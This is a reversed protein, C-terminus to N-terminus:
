HRPGGFYTFWNGVAAELSAMPIAMAGIVVVWVVGVVHLCWRRRLSLILALVAAVPTTVVALSTFLMVVLAAVSASAVANPDSPAGVARIAQSLAAGIGAVISPVCLWLVSRPMATWGLSGRTLEAWRVAIQGLSTSLV